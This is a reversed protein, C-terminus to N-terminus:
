GSAAGKRAKRGKRSFGWPSEEKKGCIGELDLWKDVERLTEEGPAFPDPCYPVRHSVRPSADERIGGFAEEELFNFLYRSDVAEGAEPGLHYEEFAELEWEKGGAVLFRLAGPAQPEETERGKWGGDVVVYDYSPLQGKRPLRTRCEPYFDLGGKTFRDRCSVADRSRHELRQFDRSGNWELLAVKFGRKVLCSGLLIAIHTAGMRSRIGWVLIPKGGFRESLDAAEGALRDRRLGELAKRLEGVDQYRKAPLTMTCKRLIEGFAQTAESNLGGLPQIRYPPDLLHLGTLLFYMVVGLSFIDTRGDSAAMGYQEPAAYARTGLPIGGEGEERTSAIGFDVLKLRGQPTRLINEPKIDRYHIPTDAFGHLYALIDALQLMYDVCEEEPIGPNQAKYDLLTTGEVYEQVLYLSGGEEEIDITRPIGPHDLDKLLRYERLADQDGVRVRKVAWLNNLRLHRVQFVQGGGGRGLEKLVQYRGLLIGEKEVEM